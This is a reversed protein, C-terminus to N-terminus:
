IKCILTSAHLYPLSIRVTNSYCVLLVFIGQLLNVKKKKNNNKPEVLDRLAKYFRKSRDYSHFTSVVKQTEWEQLSGCWQCIDSTNGAPYHPESVLIM